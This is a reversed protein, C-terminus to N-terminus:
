TAAERNHLLVRQGHTTSTRRTYQLSTGVCLSGLKTETSNKRTKLICVNVAVVVIVVFDIFSVIRPRVKDLSKVVKIM